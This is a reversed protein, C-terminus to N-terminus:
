SNLRTSKRDLNPVHVVTGDLIAQAIQTRPSPLRPNPRHPSELWETTWNHHAINHILTGDFRYVASRHGDCSRRASEAIADFVPQADTPSRSIVGLVESTAMQYELSEQLERTRSQVEEFLRTNEIAIVAQDAFTEVLAIQRKTFPRVETRGVIIVGIVEGDRVLPVGLESRVGHQLAPGLTYEPDARLDDVHVTSRELAVRGTLSGRDPLLPNAKLATVWDLVADNAAVLCYGGEGQQLVFAHEAQCLRQAIRAITDFVPQLDNPSRSIVSLVESTATQYELSEQLERKSAQEAEFLRTNEIAIVAQDAFTQLLAIQKESFPKVVTRRLFLCGIAKGERLLPIGLTTRHGSRQGIEYGLPFEDRAAMMDHVHVPKRDIYTRGSEWSRDIPGKELKTTLGHAAVLHLEGLQELLIVSNSAGCLNAATSAIEDLVPQLQNPSRSIVHLVNSIATQHELSQSLEASQARLQENHAHEAEFLRANEIVIAAQSAFTELMAVQADTFLQASARRVSISGIADGERLLPAALVTRHGWKRASESGEPYENVESQLDAIHVTRKELVSRGSVSGRSLQLSGEGAISHGPSGQHPALLLTSSSSRAVALLRLKDGDRRFISGAEAECLHAASTAVADLVPQIATPSRNIVRLIDAFAAERHRAATLELELERVKRSLDHNAGGTSHSSM